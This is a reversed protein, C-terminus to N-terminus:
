SVSSRDHLDERPWIKKGLRGQSQESLRRLRSRARNARDQHAALTTLYERVIGNVTSDHDAAYRRVASSEPGCGAYYEEHASYIHFQTSRYDEAWRFPVLRSPTRLLTSVVSCGRLLVAM